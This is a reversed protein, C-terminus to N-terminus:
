GKEHATPNNKYHEMCLKIGERFSIEPNWNMQETLKSHDSYVDWIENPREINQAFYPKELHGEELVLKIIEEVSVSKGSSVNFIDFLNQDFSRIIARIFDDVYLYDRKPRLDMVEIQKVSRNFAQAIIKPILFDGRQGPGYVNVPRFITVPVHFVESYYQCLNEALLKSHNYPSSPHVPHKEDVPLYKPDGYVYSSIYTLSCNYKRCTELINAVGMVNTQYFSKPDKWSAPIFILSALHVIHDLQPFDFNYTTVDGNERDFEYVLFGKETLAEVLHRGIFGKSGTVLIHKKQNM